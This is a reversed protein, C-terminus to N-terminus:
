ESGSHKVDESSGGFACSLGRTLMPVCRGHQEDIKWAVRAPLMMKDLYGKPKQGQSNDLIAIVADPLENGGVQCEEIFSEPSRLSHAPVPLVDLVHRNQTDILEAYENGCIRWSVLFLRDSIEIGGIDKLDLNGHRRETVVVRENPSHKGIMAKPIDDGCKLGDFEDTAWAQTSALMSLLVIIGYRRM